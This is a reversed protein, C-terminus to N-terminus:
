AAKGQKIPPRVVPHEETRVRYAVRKWLAGTLLASVLAVGAMVLDSLDM